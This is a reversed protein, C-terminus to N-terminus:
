SYNIMMLETLGSFNQKPQEMAKQHKVEGDHNSTTKQDEESQGKLEAEFIFCHARPMM